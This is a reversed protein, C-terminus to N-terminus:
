CKGGRKMTIQKGKTHGKSVVGDARTVGGKAMTAPPRGTAPMTRGSMSAARDLGRMAGGANSQSPMPRGSAGGIAMKKTSMESEEHKVVSKPAGAKKLFGLEKKMMAKSEAVEGGKAFLASKGHQTNPKNISQVDPRSGGGSGFKRGKDAEAFDKGVSMPVGAKKAFEPSHAVARMFDAQKKTTSPM